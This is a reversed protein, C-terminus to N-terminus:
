RPGKFRKISLGRRGVEKVGALIEPISFLPTVTEREGEGELLEFLPKDQRAYHEISFGKKDLKGLLELSPRAKM